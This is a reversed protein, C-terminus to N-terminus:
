ELTTRVAFFDGITSDEYVEVFNIEIKMLEQPIEYVYLLTRTEGAALYLGEPMMEESWPNVAGYDLDNVYDYLYFDYLFMPLDSGTTNIVEIPVIVFKFGEQADQGSYSTATTVSQVQFIFWATVNPMLVFSDTQNTAAERIELSTVIGNGNTDVLATTEEETQETGLDLGEGTSSTSSFSSAKNCSTLVLILVVTM